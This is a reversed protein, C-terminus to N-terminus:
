QVIVKRQIEPATWNISDPDTQIDTVLLSYLWPGFPQPEKPIVTFGLAIEATACGGWVAYAQVDPRPGWYVVAPVHIVERTSLNVRWLQVSSAHRCTRWNLSWGGFMVAPTVIAGKAPADLVAVVPQPIYQQAAAPAAIALAIIAAALIKTM